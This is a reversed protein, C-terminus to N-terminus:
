KRQTEPSLKDGTRNAGDETIEVLDVTVKNLIDVQDEGNEGLRHTTTPNM